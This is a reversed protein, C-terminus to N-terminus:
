HLWLEGIRRRLGTMPPPGYCLRLMAHIRQRWTNFTSTIRSRRLARSPSKTFIATPPSRSSTASVYVEPDAFYLSFRDLRLPGCAGPPPLFRIAPLLEMMRDYDERTEGPFGYLLNWDVEIGYQRCWKLLQINRLATTGKRMHLLLRDSLSEIGTPRAPRWGRGADAGSAEFSQSQDRLITRGAHQSKALAQLLDSFYSM